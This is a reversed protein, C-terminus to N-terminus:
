NITNQGPQISVTDNNIIIDEINGISKTINGFNEAVISLTEAVDLPLQQMKYGMYFM